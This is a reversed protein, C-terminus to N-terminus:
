AMCAVTYGMLLDDVLHILLRPNHIAELSKDANFIALLPNHDVCLILNPLGLIFFKCKELGYFIALAEGEISRYCSESSSCFRSGVYVTQWGSSCCGPLLSPCSCHKQTLWFGLGLKSWDTALATPLQPDFSRVGKSCQAIIEPKSKKFAEALETNWLFPVAPSPLPGHHPRLRLQLLYSECGGALGQMLSSFQSQPSIKPRTPLWGSISDHVYHPLPLSTVPDHERLAAMVPLLEEMTTPQMTPQM